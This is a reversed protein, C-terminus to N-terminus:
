KSWSLIEVGPAVATLKINSGGLSTDPNRDLFPNPNTKRDLFSGVPSVWYPSGDPLYTGLLDYMRPGGTNLVVYGLAEESDVFPPNPFSLVGSFQANLEAALATADGVNCFNSWDSPGTTALIVGGQPPYIKKFVGAPPVLM